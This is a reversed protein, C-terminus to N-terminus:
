PLRAAQDDIAISSEDFEKAARRYLAARDIDVRLVVEHSHNEAAL